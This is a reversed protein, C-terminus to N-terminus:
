IIWTNLKKILENKDGRSPLKNNDDIYKKIKNFNSMWEEENSTFYSCYKKSSIFNEWITRIQQNRM